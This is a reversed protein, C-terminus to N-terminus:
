ATGSTQVIPVGNAVLHMAKSSPTVTGFLVELREDV